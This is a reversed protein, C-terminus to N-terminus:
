LQGRYIRHVKHWQIGIAKMDGLSKLNREEVQIAEGTTFGGELLTRTLEAYMVANAGTGQYAPLLGVGNFMV